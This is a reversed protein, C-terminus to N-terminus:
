ATQIYEYHTNGASDLVATLTIPYGIPTDDKYVVDGVASVSGNPIVVRRALNDQGIMEIIYAHGPQASNNAKVTINNSAQTVNSDGFAVKLAQVNDSEIMTFAFTDTKSTSLTLVTDGGWAKVDSSEISNSNTVGDSSIYGVEVFANDKATVADTPLTTGLPAVWVAGSLSPKGANVNAADSM